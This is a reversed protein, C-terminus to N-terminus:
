SRRWQSSPRRNRSQETKTAWRCNKPTYNGDNDRRDLSHQRSPRRGMDKFFAPFSKRWPRCVKIGRGGYRHWNHVRSNTCREVMHYFAKYEPARSMGHSRNWIGVECGCSQSKGGVLNDALVPRTKGCQCRCLWMHRRADVVRDFRVVFWRGFRKGKLQLRHKISACSVCSKSEGNMLKGGRVPRLKGCTCKCLWVSNGGRDIRHFRIVRWKGFSGRLQLRSKSISGLIAPM